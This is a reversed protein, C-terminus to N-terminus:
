SGEDALPLTFCFEAGQGPEAKVGVQGGHRDIIRKVLALGVGVGEFDDATHLRQFVRFLQNAYKMDFGVGNDRVAYRAWGAEITADVTIRPHTERSTYKVANALLNQVVQRLMAADGRADPLKGLELEVQPGGSAHVIEDFSSQFLAAMRVRGVEVDHRGLRSFELLDDILQAMRLANVRVIEILRVAEKSLQSAHEEELIRSFGEIARLPARLDHSVSYSFAELERNSAELLATRQRVREELERNLQERTAEAAKRETIDRLICLVSHDGVPAARRVSAEVPIRSGNPRRIESEYRLEGDEPAKALFDVLEGPHPNAQFEQLGHGILQDRPLGFLSEGGRNVATVRGGPDTFLIADQAGDLVIALEAQARLLENQQRSRFLAVLGFVALAFAFFTAGAGAGVIRIHRNADALVEDRDIKVVLGWGTTPLGRTAALVPVGRYDSFEGFIQEGDLAARAAFDAAALPRAFTLPPAPNQRLPTLFLARAGERRMLVTEATEAGLATDHLMPYLSRGLDSVTLLKGQPASSGRVSAVFFLCPRAPACSALELRAPKGPPIRRAFELAPAIRPGRQLAVSGGADLLSISVYGYHQMASDLVRALSGGTPEANTSTDSTKGGLRSSVSPLSALVEVDGLRERTWREIMSQRDDAVDSLHTRWKEVARQRERPAYWALFAVVGLAATVSLVFTALAKVRVGGRARKTRAPARDVM